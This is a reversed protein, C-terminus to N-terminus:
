SSRLKSLLNRITQATKVEQNEKDLQNLVALDQFAPEMLNGEYNEKTKDFESTEVEQANNNEEEHIGSTSINSNVGEMALKEKIYCAFDYNADGPQFADLYTSVKELSTM